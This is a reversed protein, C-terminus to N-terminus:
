KAVAQEQYATLFHQPNGQQSLREDYGVRAPQQEGPLYLEGVGQEVILVTFPKGGLQVTYRVDKGTSRTDALLIKMDLDHDVGGVQVLAQHADRPGYRLTWVRAGESGSYAKVYKSIESEAAHAGALTGLALFGATALLLTRRLLARTPTLMTISLCPKIYLYQRADYKRYAAEQNRNIERFKKLNRKWLGLSCDECPMDIVRNPIQGGRVAGSMMRRM